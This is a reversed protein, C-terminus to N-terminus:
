LGYRYSGINAYTTPPFKLGVTITVTFSENTNWGQGNCVVVVIILTM